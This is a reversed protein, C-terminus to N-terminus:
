INILNNLKGKSEWILRTKLDLLAESLDVYYKHPNSLRKIEEWLAGREREVRARTEQLTPRKYVLEGNIYIPVQLEKVDYNTLTTQKWNEKEDFITYENQPIIENALAVVDALAKGTAKDYFRYVKKFSPNTIKEM